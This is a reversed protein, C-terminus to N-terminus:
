KIEMVNSEFIEDPMLAKAKIKAKYTYITHISYNLTTALKEPDDIGLRMLAIIRLEPLM